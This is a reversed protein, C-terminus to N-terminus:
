KERKKIFLDAINNIVNANVLWKLFRSCDIVSNLIHLPMIFPASIKSCPYNIYGTKLGADTLIYLDPLQKGEFEQKINITEIMGTLM